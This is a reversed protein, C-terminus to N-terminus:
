PREYVLRVPVVYCHSNSLPRRSKIASFDRNDLIPKLLLLVCFACCAYTSARVRLARLMRSVHEM